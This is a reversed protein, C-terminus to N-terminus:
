NQRTAPAGSHFNGQNQHQPQNFRKNRNRNNNNYSSQNTSSAPKFTITPSKSASLQQAKKKLFAADTYLKNLNNEEQVLDSLGKGFVGRETPRKKYNPSLSKLALDKRLSNGYSLTDLLLARSNLITQELHRWSEYTDGEEESPKSAYVIRLSNDIPRLVSSTRYLLKSYNRDTEKDSRSMVSLMRQEMKLPSFSIAKNRPEAQLIQKRVAPELSNEDYIETPLSSM